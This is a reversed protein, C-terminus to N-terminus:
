RRSSRMMAFRWCYHRRPNRLASLASTSPAERLNLVGSVDVEFRRPGGDEPSAPAVQGRADAATMLLCITAVMTPSKM